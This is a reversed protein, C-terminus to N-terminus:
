TSNFNNKINLLMLYTSFNRLLIFVPQSFIFKFVNNITQAIKRFCVNDLAIIELLDAKLIVGANQDHVFSYIYIIYTCIYINYITIFYHITNIFYLGNTSLNKTKSILSVFSWVIYWVTFLSWRFWLTFMSETKCM